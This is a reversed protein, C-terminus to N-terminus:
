RYIQWPWCARSQVTKETRETFCQSPPTWIYASQSQEPAATSFWFGDIEETPLYSPPFAFGRIKAQRQTPTKYGYESILKQINEVSGRYLFWKGEKSIGVLIPEYKERDLNEVVASASQLSIEYEPSCGGFIVAINKRGHDTESM